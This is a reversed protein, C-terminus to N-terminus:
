ATERYEENEKVSITISGDTGATITMGNRLNELGACKVHMLINKERAVIAMHSLWGGVESLIGGSRLAYPLWAPNVMQCIIIDGDEFGDFAKENAHTEDQVVFVRGTADHSGAVCTGGLVLDGPKRHSGVTSSLRECERLTLTVNRPALKLLDERQAKRTEAEMKLAASNATEFNLIQEMDLHFMLDGFQTREALALIARRIEAVVKLTEHKAQEKLDQFAIALGVADHPVTTPKSIESNTHPKAGDLMSWLLSPAESYRPTSLEYDFIARHGMLEMLTNRQAEGKLGACADILAVPSHTLDPNMLRNRADANKDAVAEAERMTFSALINVKEAEVYVESVLQDKLRSICGIIQQTPLKAFDTARSLAMQDELAPIVQDRYDVITQVALKRLQRAKANSLRLAMSQKLNCDVFTRGFFSVLHGPRGEPLNYPLGLQRCAIDVSGGPAWIAGMLSFSALTPNPLVESMEDQELIVKDPDTNKYNNLLCQWEQTRALDTRSGRALTTIDRSQVIQFMGDAYAWEIDQPFGFIDEIQRGLALLPQLNVPANGDDFPAQTYRGFRLCQPTKRGSVLDDGCGEVIEVMMLGPATPDQTFLVGAYESRVMEQILINGESDRASNATYSMARASSFSAVVEDLASRLGDQEVELVSEFVGAFSDDAGDENSASSRVACPANGMHRWILQCFEDKEGAAMDSYSNIAEGQVVVGDPVPVGASKLM